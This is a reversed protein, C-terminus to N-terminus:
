KASMFAILDDSRLFDINPTEMKGCKSEIHLTVEYIKINLGFASFFPVFYSRIRVSKVCAM